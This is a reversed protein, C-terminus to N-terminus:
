ALTPGKGTYDQPAQAQFSAFRNRLALLALVFLAGLLASLFPTM